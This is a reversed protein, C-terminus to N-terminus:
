KNVFKKGNKIVVGKYNADVRQGNLNYIVDTAKKGSVAVNSIGTETQEDYYIYVESSGDDPSSFCPTRHQLHL